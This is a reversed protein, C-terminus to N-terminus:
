SKESDRRYFFGDPLGVWRSQTGLVQCLVGMVLARIHVCGAQMKLPFGCSGSPFCRPHAHSVVRYVQRSASVACAHSCGLSGM